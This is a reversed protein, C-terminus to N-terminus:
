ASGEFQQWIMQVGQRVAHADPRPQLALQFNNLM